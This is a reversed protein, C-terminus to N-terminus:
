QHHPVTVVVARVASNGSRDSCRLTVTYVRGTGQGARAAQFTASLPGTLVFQETGDHENTSISAIRCTPQPDFNDIAAATFSVPVMRGDPPWLVTLSAEATTIVPPENDKSLKFARRQGNVEGVGVIQGADNIGTGMRLIWGSSPAILDNLNVTGGADTYLFAEYIDQSGSFVDPVFLARGVVDGANNMALGNSALLHPALDQMGAGDTYRFAHFRPLPTFGTVATGAVQGSANIANGESDSGGLTGLNQLGAGTTYRFAMRFSWGSGYSYGTVQGVDNMALGWSASGKIGRNDFVGLDELATGVTRFARPGIELSPLYVGAVDGANNISAAASQFGRLADIESFGQDDSYRFSVTSGDPLVEFGVIVGADNIASAWSRSGRLIEPAAPNHLRRWARVDFSDTTSQVWGVADGHRNIGTVHPYTNPGFDGLDELTYQPDAPETATLAPNSVLAIGVGVLALRLVHPIRM